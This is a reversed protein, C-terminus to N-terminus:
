AVIAADDRGWLRANLNHHDWGVFLQYDSLRRHLENLVLCRGDSCARLTRARISYRAYGAAFFATAGLLVRGKQM